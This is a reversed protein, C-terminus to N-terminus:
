RLRCLVMVMMGVLFNVFERGGGCELVVQVLVPLFVALGIYYSLLLLRSVEM